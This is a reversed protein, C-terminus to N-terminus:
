RRRATAQRVGVWAFPLGPASRSVHEAGYAVVARVPEIADSEADHKCGFPIAALSKARTCAARAFFPTARLRAACGEEDGVAPGARRRRSSHVQTPVSGTQTRPVSALLPPVHLPRDPRPKTTLATCTLLGTSPARRAGRALRPARWRIGELRRGLRRCSIPLEDVLSADAARRNRATRRPRAPSGNRGPTARNVSAVLVRDIVGPLPRGLDDGWGRRAGERHDSGRATGGGARAPPRPQDRPRLM